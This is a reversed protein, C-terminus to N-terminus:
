SMVRKLSIKSTAVDLSCDRLRLAESLERKDVGDKSTTFPFEGGQDSGFIVVDAGCIAIGVTLTVAGCGCSTIGVILTVVDIGEEQEKSSPLLGLFGKSVTLHARRPDFIVSILFNLAARLM